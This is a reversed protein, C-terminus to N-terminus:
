AARRNAQAVVAAIMAAEPDSARNRVAWVVTERPYGALAVRVPPPVPRLEQPATVYRAVASRIAEDSRGLFRAMMRVTVGDAYMAGLREVEATTWANAM